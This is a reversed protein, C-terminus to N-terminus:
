SKSSAAEILANFILRYSGRTQGRFQPRFGFLVVRGAGYQAEVLAAKRRLEQTHKGRGSLVLKGEAPYRMVVSRDRGPVPLETLFVPSATHFVAAERPMGFGLPHNTDVEARLLTGHTMNRPPDDGGMRSVPLEFKSLPLHCSEGLTILTGGSLVFQRLAEVGENALGGSFRSPRRSGYRADPGGRYGHLLQAYTHEPILIADYSLQLDGRLIEQNQLIAYPVEFRDLMLRTWGEDTSAVWSQYLGLRPLAVTRREPATSTSVTELTEAPELDVKSVVAQTEQIVADIASGGRVLFTGAPWVKPSGMAGTPARMPHVIQQVSTRQQLFRFVAHFNATAKPSLAYWSDERTTTESSWGLFDWTNGTVERKRVRLPGDLSIVNTGMMLPLCWATVDYPEHTARSESGIRVEPYDHPEMLEILLNAYPQRTSFLVSGQPLSFGEQEKPELTQFAELGHMRLVDILDAANTLDHQDPPIVFNRPRDVGSASMVDRAMRARGWLIDQRHKAVTELASNSAILGYELIDKPRWWGGPWPNPFNVQARYDALGKV